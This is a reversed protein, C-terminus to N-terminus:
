CSLFAEPGTRERFWAPGPSRAKRRACAAAGPALQKQQVSINESTLVMIVKKAFARSPFLSVCLCLFLVDENGVSSSKKATITTINRKNGFIINGQKTPFRKKYANEHTTTYVNGPIRRGPIEEPCPFHLLQRPGPCQAWGALLLLPHVPCTLAARERRIGSIQLVEKLAIHFDSKDM